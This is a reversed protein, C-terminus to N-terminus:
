NTENAVKITQNKYSVLTIIMFTSIAVAQYGAFFTNTAMVVFGVISILFGVLPINIRTNFEKKYLKYSFHMILVLYGLFFFMGVLGYRQLILAYESDIVTDHISKAPGWGLAVSELFREYALFVNEFRVNLSTNTGELAMQFGILIYELNLFQLVQYFIYSILLVVFVKIFFNTKSFILMYIFLSSALGFFVTRSQTSLLVILLTVIQFIKYIKIQKSLFTLLILFLVILAGVNPDSGTVIIRHAGSLMAETHGASSYILGTLYGLNGINTIQLFAIFFVFIVSVKLYILIKKEFSDYDILSTVLLYPLVQAYRFWEMYDRYTTEVDLVIYSYNISYFMTILIFTYWVVFRNIEIKQMFILFPLLLIIILSVITISNIAIGVNLSPLFLAGFLGVLVLHEIYYNIKIYESGELPIQEVHVSRM